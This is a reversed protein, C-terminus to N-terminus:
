VPNQRMSWINQNVKQLSKPWSRLQFLYLTNQIGPWRETITPYDFGRVIWACM